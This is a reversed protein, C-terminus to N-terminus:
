LGGRGNSLAGSPTWRVHALAAPTINTNMQNPGAGNFLGLSYIWANDPSRGHLMAGIDRGPSFVRNAISRENFQQKTGSLIFQYSYPVKYQGLRLQFQKNWRYDFYFDKLDVSPRNERPTQLEMDTEYKLDPTMFTGNLQLRARRLRFGAQTIGTEDSLTEYRQQVTFTPIFRFKGDRTTVFLKKKEYGYLLYPTLKGQKEQPQKEIEFNIEDLIEPDFTNDAWVPQCLLLTFCAVFFRCKNKM